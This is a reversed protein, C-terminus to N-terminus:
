APAEEKRISIPPDLKKRRGRWRDLLIQSYEAVWISDESFAAHQHGLNGRWDFSWRGIRQLWRILRVSGVQLNGGFRLKPKGVYIIFLVTQFEFSQNQGFHKVTVATGASRALICHAPHDRNV